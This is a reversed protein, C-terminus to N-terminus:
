EKPGFGMLDAHVKVGGTSSSWETTEADAWSLVIEEGGHLAVLRCPGPIEPKDRPYEGMFVCTMSVTVAALYSDTAPAEYPNGLQERDDVIEHRVTERTIKVAFISVSKKRGLFDYELVAHDFSWATTMTRPRIM